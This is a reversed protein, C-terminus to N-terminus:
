ADNNPVVQIEKISEQKCSLGELEMMLIARATSIKKKKANQFADYTTPLYLKGNKVEM